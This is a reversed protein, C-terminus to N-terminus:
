CHRVRETARIEKKPRGRKLKQQLDDSDSPLHPPM